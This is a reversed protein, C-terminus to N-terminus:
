SLDEPRWQDQGGHRQADRAATKIAEALALAARFPLVIGFAPGEEGERDAQVVVFNDDTLFVQVGGQSMEGLEDKNEDHKDNDYMGSM